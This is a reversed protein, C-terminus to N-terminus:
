GSSAYALLRDQAGGFLTAVPLGAVKGIIDWLAAELPWYRGGHFNITELRRVQNLIAMPDTGIFLHEYAEFGDM